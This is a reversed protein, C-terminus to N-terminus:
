SQTTRAISRPRHGQFENKYSSDPQLLSPSQAFTPKFSVSSDAPTDNFTHCERQLLAVKRDLGGAYGTMAGTSGVVRHCPIVIGIPNRGTAAGVARAAQPKGIAQCIAGYTSTTGIQINLIERWVSQQFYTGSSLDLPLHFNALKGAFYAALQLSAENLIAKEADGVRDPDNDHSTASVLPWAAMKAETPSHKQGQIFWAGVLGTPSTALLMNGLPTQIIKKSRQTHTVMDM